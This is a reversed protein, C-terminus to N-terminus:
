DLIECKQYGALGPFPSRIGNTVYKLREPYSDSGKSNKIKVQPAIQVSYIHPQFRDELSRHRIYKEDRFTIDHFFAMGTGQDLADGPSDHAGQVSHQDGIQDCTTDPPGHGNPTHLHDCLDDQIVQVLPAPLQDGFSGYFGPKIFLLSPIM